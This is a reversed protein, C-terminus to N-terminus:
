SFFIKLLAKLLMTTYFSITHYKMILICLTSYFLLICLITSSTSLIRSRQNANRTEFPRTDARSPFLGFGISSSNSPFWNLGLLIILVQLENVSASKRLHILYSICCIRLYLEMCLPYSWVLPHLFRQFSRLVWFDTRKLIIIHLTYYFEMVPLDAEFKCLWM